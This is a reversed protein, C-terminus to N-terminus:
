ILTPLNPRDPIDVNRESHNATLVFSLLIRRKEQFEEPAYNVFNHWILYNNLYKTSVGKFGEIFHKLTSHYNNIHQLNFIGKRTEWESELKHWDLNERESFTFYSREKDTILASGEKIRGALVASIGAKTARATNAVKAISLGNRNVACPVCVKDYSLGRKRIAGGRKHPERPMVFNKSNKHNGKYSVNFFTEDAEVMGELTVDEAMQQLADLVKHRWLFATNKSIKCYQATKRISFGNMMCDIFKEWTDLDKRSGAAISNTTATFSKGCEMCRYKQTGDKRKGNRVVHTCGCVPCVLGDSFRLEGVFKKVSDTNGISSYFLKSLVQNQETISLNSFDALVSKVSPM